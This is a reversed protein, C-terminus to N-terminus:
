RRFPTIPAKVRMRLVFANFALLAAGIYGPIMGLTSAIGIGMLALVLSPVWGCCLYFTSALTGVLAGIASGGGIVLCSRLRGQAHLTVLYFVNLALLFSLLAGLLVAYVKFTVIFGDGILHLAPGTYAQSELYAPVVVIGTVGIKPVIWLTTAGSLTSFALFYLAGLAAGVTQSLATVRM